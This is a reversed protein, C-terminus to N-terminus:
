PSSKSTIMTHDNILKLEILLQRWLKLILDDLEQEAIEEVVETFEKIATLRLKNVIYDNHKSKIAVMM